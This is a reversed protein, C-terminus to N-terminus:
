RRGWGPHNNNQKGNPVVDGGKKEGKPQPKRGVVGGGTNIKNQQTRTSERWNEWHHKRTFGKGRCQVGEKYMAGEAKKGTRPLNQEKRLVTTKFGGLGHKARSDGVLGM